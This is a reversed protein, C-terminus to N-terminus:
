LIFAREMRLPSKKNTRRFKYIESLDYGANEKGCAM